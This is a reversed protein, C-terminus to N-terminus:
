VSKSKTSDAKREMDSMMLAVRKDYWVRRAEPTKAAVKDLHSKHYEEFTPFEKPVHKAALKPTTKLRAMFEPLWGLFAQKSKPDKIDSLVQAWAKRAEPKTSLQAPHITPITPLPKSM